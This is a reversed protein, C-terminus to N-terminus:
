RNKPPTQGGLLRARGGIREVLTLLGRAETDRMQKAPRCGEPCTMNPVHGYLRCLMPRVAYARCAKTQPDMAPCDLADSSRPLGVIAAEVRQAELETAMVPGCCKGCGAKCPMPPITAYVSELDEIRLLTTDSIM